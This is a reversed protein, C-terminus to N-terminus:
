KGARSICWDPIRRGNKEFLAVAESASPKINQRIPDFMRSPAKHYPGDKLGVSKRVLEHIKGRFWMVAARRLADDRFADAACKDAVKRVEREIVQSCANGMPEEADGASIRRKLEENESELERIRAKYIRERQGVEIIAAGLAECSLEQQMTNEQDLSEIPHDIPTSLIREVQTKSLPKGTRGTVNEASLDKVIGRLSRGARRLMFIRKIVAQEEPHEELHVGDAALRFGYPTQGGTFEGQSAKHQLAASTQESVMRSHMERMVDQVSGSCVGVNAACNNM